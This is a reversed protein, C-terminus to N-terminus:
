HLKILEIGYLVSHFTESMPHDLGNYIAVGGRQGTRHKRDMGDIGRVEGDSGM